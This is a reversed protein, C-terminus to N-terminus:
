ETGGTPAPLTGDKVAQVIKDLEADSLDRPQWEVKTTERGSKSTKVVEVEHWLEDELDHAIAISRDTTCKEKVVREPWISLALHAWDYKGSELEQWTKKLKDRWKKLRFFKWLPAATIQVGDNLNPKWFAAIELLDAKFQTLETEFEMLEGLEKEQASSRESIARLDTIQRAVDKLKPDVFENVAKYLTQDTLRHYYFWLTYSGTKTCLPWYIPASRRSKSYCSQHYDFFDKEIWEGVPRELVTELELLVKESFNPFLSGLADGVASALNLENTPDSVLIPIATSPDGMAPSLQPLEAFPDNEFNLSSSGYNDISFRRFAFGIAHSILSEGIRRQGIGGSIPLFSRPHCQGVHCALELQRDVFYSKKTLWRSSGFENKGLEMLEDISLKLLDQLSEDDKLPYSCPHPGIEADVFEVESPTLELWDTVSNDISYTSELSEIALAAWRERHRDAVEALSNLTSVDVGVFLCNTEDISNQWGIFSLIKRRDEDFEEGALNDVCDAPISHIVKTTYRRAASGSTAVDGGGVALEIYSQPCRAMCYFISGVLTAQTEPFWSQANHSFVCGAPLIKAAFASATRVTYTAGPLNYFQDNRIFARKFARFVKGDIGWDVLLHIDDYPPSYAGGKSFRSWRQHQGIQNSPVEWGLRAFRFDDATAIGQRVRAVKEEFSRSKEFRRLHSIPAWYGFVGGPILEIISQPVSFSNNKGGELSQRLSQEKETTALHRSAFIVNNGPTQKQIAYAAAEVLADDLVGLGLDAFLKLQNKWVVELRWSESDGMFFGTRASLVGTMGAPNLSGLCREVFCQFIDQKSNPYKKKQYSSSAKAAEGFPPNMLAVEFQTRCSEIFAFGKEADGAFLKRRFGGESTESAYKRLTEYITEEAQEFFQQDTIGSLDFELQKEKVSDTGGFFHMQTKQDPPNEQFQKKAAAVLATIEQEIKLLSGAEGALKMEEFIATVMQAIAPHLEKCFAELQQQDGPMPEACVINSRTVQPRNGAAIGQSKWARQARLWLSLGAIQVARPDIDIGHINHEIILRPVDRLYSERDEYLDTLPTLETLEVTGAEGSAVLDWFEEYIKLYLDFAYLGFHMSGCAPDLMRIERPDKLPRHPIHVPQNLLEEQTLDKEPPTDTPQDGAVLATPEPGEEGEALFIENPRRVLYKCEDKLGTEGKRMEYWIRGLTNDTLFEVVYRPTFFQNRVALERSNRPAQSADRMAKREEKSNFYQYIWGITEDEAWLHNIDAHNIEAIVENLVKERPFLRGQPSYRDFLAPLDVAFEDFVSLLFQQYAVGTDGLSSGVVPQYLQFGKSQLGSAVTEVVLDRAEAMRIASLRNLITFAQERVIRELLQKYDKQTDKNKTPLNAYYHQLTERLIIATQRGADDLHTLRDLDTIEGTDPNLGYEVQFQNTFEETLLSRATAVFQNLRNRTSTDFAM